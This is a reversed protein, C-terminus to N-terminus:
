FYMDRRQQLELSIYDETYDGTARVLQEYSKYYATMNINHNCFRQYLMNKLRGYDIGKNSLIDIDFALHYINVSACLTCLESLALGIEDDTVTFGDFVLSFVGRSEGYAPTYMCCGNDNWRRKTIHSEADLRKATESGNRGTELFERNTAHILTFLKPADFMCGEKESLIM